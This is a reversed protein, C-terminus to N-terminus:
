ASYVSPAPARQVHKRTVEGPSPCGCLALALELESRLVQAAGAEGGAALGWLAPRGVLVADAGLALAVVADTGRRVGGDVLIAARGEVADVIEPLADASAAVCDLQRGGHNSVVIGAAGHEVALEADEATLVGKV